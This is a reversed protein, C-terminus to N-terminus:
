AHVGDFPQVGPCTALCRNCSVPIGFRFGPGLSQELDSRPVSISQIRADPQNPRSVISVDLLEAKTIVQHSIARDYARGTIHVCDEPDEGCVSCESEEVVAGISLGVRKHALAVPCTQRYEGNEFSLKCGFRERIQRGAKDLSSHAQEFYPTDELWDLASRFVALASRARQEPIGPLALSGDQALAARLEEQASELKALGIRVRPRDNSM